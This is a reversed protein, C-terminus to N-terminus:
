IGSTATFKASVNASALQNTSRTRPSASSSSIPRSVEESPNVGVLLLCRLYVLDDSPM